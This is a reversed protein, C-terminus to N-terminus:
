TKSEIEQFRVMVRCVFRRSCSASDGGLREGDSQVFRRQVVESSTCQATLSSCV